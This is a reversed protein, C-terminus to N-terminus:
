LRENKLIGDFYKITYNTFFRNTDDMWSDIEGLVAQIRELPLLNTDVIEALLESGRIRSKSLKEDQYLILPSFLFNPLSTRHLRLLGECYIRLPWIGSWDNGRVIVSMTNEAADKDVLSLGKCFNRFPINIDIYSDNDPTFLTEYAGHLPCKGRILLEQESKSVIRTDMATKEILGCVPCPIRYHLRKDSPQFLHGFYDSDNMVEMIGRRVFADAQIDHYNGIHCGIGSIAGLTKLLSVFKDRNKRLVPNDDINRKYFYTRGDCNLTESQGPDSINDILDVHVRVPKGYLEKLRSAFVFGTAFNILTGLHPAGNLRAALHITFGTKNEAKWEFLDTVHDTIHNIGSYIGIM